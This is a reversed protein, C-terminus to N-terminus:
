PEVAEVDEVPAAPARDEAPAPAAGPSASPAAEPAAEPAPASLPAPAPDSGSVPGSVAGSDPGSVSISVPAAVLDPGVPEIRSIQVSVEEEFSRFLASGEARVSSEALLPVGERLEYRALRTFSKIRASFSPKFSEPASLRVASVWPENGQGAGERTVVVEGELYSLFRKQNEAADEPAQPKFRYTVTRADELSVIAENGVTVAVREYGLSDDGVGSGQIGELVKRADEARESEPESQSTDRDAFRWAPTERPDYRLVVDVGDNVMTQTFAWRAESAPRGADFARQLLDPLSPSLSPAPVAADEGMADEATAAEIPAAEAPAAEDADTQALVSGAGWGLSILVTLLAGLLARPLAPVSRNQSRPVM